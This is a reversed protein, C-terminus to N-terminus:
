QDDLINLPGCLSDLNSFTEQLELVLLLSIYVNVFLQLVFFQTMLKMLSTLFTGQVNM